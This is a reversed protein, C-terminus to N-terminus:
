RNYKCFEASICASPTTTGMYLLTPPYKELEAAKNSVSSVHKTTVETLDRLKDLSFANGYGYRRWTYYNRRHTAVTYNPPPEHPLRVAKHQANTHTGSNKSM